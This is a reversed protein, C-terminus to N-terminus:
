WIGSLHTSIFGKSGKDRHWLLAHAQSATFPHALHTKPIANKTIIKTCQVPSCCDRFLRTLKCMCTHWKFEWRSMLHLQIHSSARNFLKADPSADHVIFTGIFNLRHNNTWLKLDDHSITTMLHCFYKYPHVRKYVAKLSWLSGIWSFILHNKDQMSYLIPNATYLIGKKHHFLMVTNSPLLISSIRAHFGRRM